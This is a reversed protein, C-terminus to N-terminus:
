VLASLMGTNQSNSFLAQRRPLGEPQTGGAWQAGVSEESCPASLAGVSHWPQTSLSQGQVGYDWNRCVTRGNSSTEAM